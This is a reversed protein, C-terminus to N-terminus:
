ANAGPMGVQVAARKIGMVVYGRMIGIPIVPDDGNLLYTVNCTVSRGLYQETEPDYEHLVLIDGVAFGGPRDNIRVEFQKSGDVVAKFWPSWSKLHFIQRERATM